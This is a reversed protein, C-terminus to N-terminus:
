FSTVQTLIRLEHRRFWFSAQEWSALGADIVNCRRSGGRVENPSTTQTHMRETAGTAGNTNSVQARLSQIEAELKEIRQTNDDRVSDHYQCPTENRLCRQCPRKGDCKVKSSRCSACANIARRKRPRDSSEPSNMPANSHPRPDEALEYSSPKVHRLLASYLAPFDPSPLSRPFCGGIFMRSGSRRSSGHEANIETAVSTHMGPQLHTNSVSFCESVIRISIPNLTTKGVDLGVWHVRMIKALVLFRESICFGFWIM